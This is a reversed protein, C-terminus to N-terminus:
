RGLRQRLNDRIQNRRDNQNDRAREKAEKVKKQIKSKLDKLRQGKNFGKFKSQLLTNKRSAWKTKLAERFAVGGKLRKQIAERIAQRREKVKGLRDLRLGKGAGFRERKVGKSDVEVNGEIVDLEFEGGNLSEVVFDTGRVGAVASPTRIVFSENKNWNDLKARILGQDLELLLGKGKAAKLVRLKSNPAVVFQNKDGLTIEVSGNADTHITDGEALPQGAELPLSQGSEHLTVGGEVLVLEGLVSGENGNLPLALTLLALSLQVIKLPM